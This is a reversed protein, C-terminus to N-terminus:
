KGTTQVIDKIHIYDGINKAFTHLQEITACNKMSNALSSIIAVNGDVYGKTNDIRDLSPSNTYNGKTGTFLPIQLIPCKEPITLSDPNLTFELNNKLARVRANRLMRDIAYREYRNRQGANVKARYIPDTLLKKKRYENEKDRIRQKNKARYIRQRELGDRNVCKKCKKRYQIYTKTGIIRETRYFQDITKIEQCSTCQQSTQM